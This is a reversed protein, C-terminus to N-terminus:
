DVCENECIMSPISITGDDYMLMLRKNCFFRHVTEDGIGMGRITGNYYFEDGVKKAFKAIIEDREEDSLVIFVTRRDEGEYFEHRIYKGNNYSRIYTSSEFIDGERPFITSYTKDLYQRAKLIDQTEKTKRKTGFISM